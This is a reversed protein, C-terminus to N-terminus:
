RQYRQEEAEYEAVLRKFIESVPLIDHIEGVREGAFILGKELDGIQAADLAGRICYNSNCNKLCGSCDEVPITEGAIIRKSFPSLVARGPLGVPSKIFVSDEPIANIYAEKFPLAANSEDSAAFRTAMQVGKAGKALVHYIDAGTMIGGAAIVPIDVSELVEPLIDHMSRDTGLHGGAEVGEVVVASAGLRQAMKALRGSSVMPVIEVGYNKGWSYMDRSVGAGSTFMDIGASMAAKALQAFNSVAFLINVGLAGNGKILKKALAIEDRLEAPSMATGAIVGVGGETAVAAALRATSIRVAMGGQIIPIPVTFGGITLSPMGPM